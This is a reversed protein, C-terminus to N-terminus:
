RLRSWLGYECANWEASLPEIEIEVSSKGACRAEPLAFEAERWRRWINRSASHWIGASVGDVYVRARQGPGFHTQAQPFPVGDAADFVRRLWAGRNEPDLSMRFRTRGPERRGDFSQLPELREGEFQSAFAPLYTSGASAYAHQQESVPDGVDLLDSASAAPDARHYAYAVSRYRAGDYGEPGQEVGYRISAAYPIPDGVMVRYGSTYDALGGIRRAPFGHLELAFPLAFEAEYWGWNWIEETGTGHHTPTRLGDVHVHEDGELYTRQQPAGFLGDSGVVMSLGVLKGHGQAEYLVHDRLELWQSIPPPVDERLQARFTGFRGGYPVPLHLVRVRLQASHRSANRLRMVCSSAYPMPWWCRYAGGPQLDFLLGKVRAEGLGCGFFIDLPCDVDPVSAGDFGIELRLESVSARTAADLPEIELAAISGAHERLFASASAGPALSLLREERAAFASAGHPASGQARLLAELPATSAAAPAFSPLAHEAELKRWSVHLYFCPGTTRIVLRRAFPIPTYLFPGGPSVTDDGVVPALFPASQGSVFDRVPLDIRPTLEDDFFFRIDYNEAGPLYGLHSGPTSRFAFHLREVLGPGEQDFVVAEGGELRLITHFGSLGDDNGATRDFSSEQHSRATTELEALRHLRRWPELEAGAPPFAELPAPALALDLERRALREPKVRTRVEITAALGGADDLRARYAGSEPARFGIELGRADERLVEFAVSDGSPALLESLRPRYAQADRARFSARVQDGQTALLELAAGAGEDLVAARQRRPGRAKLALEYRGARGAEVVVYHPGSEALAIGSARARAPSARLRPALDFPGSPTYLALGGEGAGEWRLDLDLRTGAAARLVFVDRGGAALANAVREAGRVELWNEEAAASLPSAGLPFAALSGACIWAACLALRLRALGRRALRSDVLRALGVRALRSDVLRALGGRALRLGRLRALGGHALRLGRLRALGGRALHSGSM